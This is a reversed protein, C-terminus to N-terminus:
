GRDTGSIRTVEHLKGNIESAKPSRSTMEYGLGVGNQPM